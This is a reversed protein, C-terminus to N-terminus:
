LQKPWRKSAKVRDGLKVRPLPELGNPAPDEEEMLRSGRPLVGLTLDRHVQRGDQEKM